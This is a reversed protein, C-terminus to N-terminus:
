EFIKRMITENTFTTGEYLTSSLIVDKDHWVLKIKEAQGIYRMYLEGDNFKDIEAAKDSYEERFLKIKKFFDKSKNDGGGDSDEIIIKELGQLFQLIFKKLKKEENFSILYRILIYLLTLGFIIVIIIFHEVSFLNLYTM